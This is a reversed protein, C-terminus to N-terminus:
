VVSKRDEKILLMIYPAYPVTGRALMAEHMENFIFDMVDIRFDTGPLLNEHCEHALSLLEVLSTRIADNNGGSPVLNDRLLRVLKAYLPLLGTTTGPECTPGYLDALKNKNHDAAVGHLRRGSGIEYGLIEAFRNWTSECYELGTMWKIKMPDDTSFVVTSYFQLIFHTNFNCKLTMLHLLGMQDLVNYADAFYEQRSLHDLDTSRFLM